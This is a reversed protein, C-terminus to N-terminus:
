QGTWQSSTNYTCHNCYYHLTTAIAVCHCSLKVSTVALTHSLCKHLHLTYFVRWTHRHEYVPRCSAVLWSGSHPPQECTQTLCSVAQCQHDGGICVHYVLVTATETVVSCQWTTSTVPLSHQECVVKPVSALKVFQLLFVVFNSLTYHALHIVTMSLSYSFKQMHCLLTAHSLAHIYHLHAPSFTHSPHIQRTMHKPTVHIYMVHRTSTHWMSTSSTDHTRTDCPHVQCTIHKHWTSTCSMDHADVNCVFVHIYM